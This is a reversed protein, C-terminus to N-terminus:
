ALPCIFLALGSVEQIIGDASIASRQPSVAHSRKVDGGGNVVDVIDRVDPVGVGRDRGVGRLVEAARDVIAELLGEM